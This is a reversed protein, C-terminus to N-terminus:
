GGEFFSSTDLLTDFTEKCAPCRLNRRFDPGFTLSDLAQALRKRDGLTLARLLEVGYADLASSPLAGFSRICRLLLADRARLPDRVSIGAVFEEDGGRPAGLTVRHHVQGHEDEYGDELEVTVEVAAEGEALRRIPIQSLDEVISCARDCAPCAYHATLQDGLTLRRLELLAFNRDAVHLRKMTEAEVRDLEGLRVTCAALLSSVLQGANLRTDYLLEEEAGTMKRLCLERHLRGSRDEYGIPLESTRTLTAMM